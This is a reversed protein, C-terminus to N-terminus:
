YTALEFLGEHPATLFSKLSFHLSQINNSTFHFLWNKLYFLFSITIWTHFRCLIYDLPTLILRFIILFTIKTTRSLFFDLLLKFIEFFLFIYSKHYIKFNFHVYKGILPIYPTFSLLGLSSSKPRCTLLIISGYLFTYYSYWISISNLGLNLLQWKLHLRSLIDMCRQIIMCTLSMQIFHLPQTCIDPDQSPSLSNHSYLIISTGMGFIWM